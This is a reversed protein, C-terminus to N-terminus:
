HFVGRIINHGLNETTTLTCYSYLDITCALLQLSVVDSGLEKQVDLCDSSHVSSLCDGVQKTRGSSLTDLVHDRKQLVAIEESYSRMAMMPILSSCCIMCQLCKLKGSAM